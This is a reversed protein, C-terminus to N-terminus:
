STTRRCTPCKAEFSGDDAILKTYSLGGSWWYKPAYFVQAERMTHTGYEAMVTWGDQFAIPKACAALPLALALSVCALRLPSASPM